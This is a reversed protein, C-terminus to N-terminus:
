QTSSEDDRRLDTGRGSHFHDTTSDGDAARRFRRFTDLARRGRASTEEEDTAEVAAELDALEFAELFEAASAIDEVANSARRIIQRDDPGALRRLSSKVREPEAHDDTM